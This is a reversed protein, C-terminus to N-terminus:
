GGRFADPDIEYRQLWRMIQNRAKEMVRAVESVNGRHERLLRVITNRRKLERRAKRVAAHDSPSATAKARRTEERMLALLRLAFEIQQPSKLVESDIGFHESMIARVMLLAHHVAIAADADQPRASPILRLREEFTTVPEEPQGESRSRDSRTSKRAAM